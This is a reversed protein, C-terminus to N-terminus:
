TSIRSCSAGKRWCTGRRRKTATSFVSPEKQREAGAVDEDHRARRSTSPCPRADRALHRESGRRVLLRQRQAPPPRRAREARPRRRPRSRALRRARRSRGQRAGRARGAATPAGEGGPRQTAGALSGSSASSVPRCSLRAAQERPVQDADREEREPDPQQHMGGDAGVAARQEVDTQREQEREHDRHEREHERRAEADALARERQREPVVDGPCRRSGIEAATRSASVSTSSTNTASATRAARSRQDPPRLGVAPPARPRAHRARAARPLRPSRSGRRSARCGPRTSRPRARRSVGGCSGCTRTATTSAPSLFSCGHVEADDFGAERLLM